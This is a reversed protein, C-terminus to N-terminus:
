LYEAYDPFLKMYLNDTLNEEFHRIYQGDMGTSERNAKVNKGANWVMRKTLLQSNSEKM